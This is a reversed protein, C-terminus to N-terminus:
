IEKSNGDDKKVTVLATNGMIGVVTVRTSTKVLKGTIERAQVIESDNQIKGLPRLEEIVKAEDGVEMNVAKHSSYEKATIDNKLTKVLKISNNNKAAYMVCVIILTLYMWLALGTYRLKDVSMIRYCLYVFSLGTIGEAVGLGSIIISFMLGNLFVLFALVIDADLGAYASFAIAGIGYIALLMKQLKVSTTKWFCYMIGVSIIVFIEQM